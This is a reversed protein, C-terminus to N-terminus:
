HFIHRTWLFFPFKKKEKHKVGMANRELRQWLNGQRYKKGWDCKRLVVGKGDINRTSLFLDHRKTLPCVCRSLRSVKNSMAHVSSSRLFCSRLKCCSGEAVYGGKLLLFQAFTWSPQSISKIPLKTVSAHSSSTYSLSFRFLIVHWPLFHVRWSIPRLMIEPCFLM